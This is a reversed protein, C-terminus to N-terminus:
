HAGRTRLRPAMGASAPPPNNATQIGMSLAMRAGYITGTVAASAIWRRKLILLTCHTANHSVNALGRPLLSCEACGHQTHQRCEPPTPRVASPYCQVRVTSVARVTEPDFKALRDINVCTHSLD